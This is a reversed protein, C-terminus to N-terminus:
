LFVCICLLLLNKNSKFINFLFIVILIKIFFLDNIFFVDNIILDFICNSEFINFLMMLGM